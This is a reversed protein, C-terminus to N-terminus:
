GRAPGNAPLFKLTRDLSLRRAAAIGLPRTATLRKPLHLARSLLVCNARLFRRTQGQGPWPTDDLPYPPPSPHCISTATDGFVVGGFGGLIAESSGFDALIVLM